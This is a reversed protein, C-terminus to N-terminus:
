PFRVGGVAERSGLGEADEDGGHLQQGAGGIAVQFQLRALDEEDAAAPGALQVAVVCRPLDAAGVGEELEHGDPLLFVVAKQDHLM